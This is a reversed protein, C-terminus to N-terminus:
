ETTIVSVLIAGGAADILAVVPTDIANIENLAAGAVEAVGIEALVVSSADAQTATGSGFAAENGIVGLAEDDTATGVGFAAETVSVRVTSDSGEKAAAIEIGVMRWAVNAGTAAGATDFTSNNFLAIAGTAPTNYNGTAGNGTGATGTLTWSGAAAPATNSLQVGFIIARNNANAAAALTVTEATGTGNNTATSAVIAQLANGSVEAGTVEFAIICSGTTTGSVTTAEAASTPSAGAEAVWISLQHTTSLTSTGLTLKSYSVGHGSVGTPDLPSSSYSQVVCAVLLANAAPTWTPSATQGGATTTYISSKWTITIAM